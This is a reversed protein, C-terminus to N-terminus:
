DIHTSASPKGAGAPSPPRRKPSRMREIDVFCRVLKNDLEAMEPSLQASADEHLLYLDGLSRTAEEWNDFASLARFLIASPSSAAAQSKPRITGGTSSSFHTPPNMHPNHHILHSYMQWAQLVADKAASHNGFYASCLWKSYFPNLLKSYDGGWGLLTNLALGPSHEITYRILYRSQACKDMRSNFLVRRKIYAARLGLIALNASLWRRRWMLHDDHKNTDSALASPTCHEYKQAIFRPWQMQCLQMLQASTLDAGGLGAAELEPIVGDPLESSFQERVSFCGARLLYRAMLPRQQSLNGPSTWGLHGIAVLMKNASGANYTLRPDDLLELLLTWPNFAIGSRSLKM